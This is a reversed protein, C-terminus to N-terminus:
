YMQIGAERYEAFEIKFCAGHSRDLEITGNLQEVLMVVLQMGLSKTKRFDIDEPFGIGDDSVVVEFGDKEKISFSVSITGKSNDPFAYKFTNTLLENVVLGCPIATDVVLEVDGLDLNLTIRNPDIAYSIFLNKILNRIYEAFNIKALDERQYLEEHILAMSKIRNQSEKYVERADGEPIYQSQLNILGSIVQLNNKVRHHVEKLLVKKEELSIRVSEEAEKLRTIDRTISLIYSVGGILMVKASMLGSVITGDKMRFKAELNEVEGCSMIEKVLKKRDDPDVWIDIEVSTKGIVEERTYGTIRTFGQNIDEYTGDALRNLNISDPSTHFATRFREESDALAKETRERETVDSCLVIRADRGMHMTGSSTVDIDIVTGDKKWHKWTKRHLLGGELDSFSELLAPVEEPPRIDILSMGLLEEEAFGYHDVMAENVALIELTGTDYVYMPTPSSVFLRRHRYESEKLAEEIKRSETVDRVISLVKDDDLPSLRSEYYKTEGDLKLSYEQLKVTGTKLVEQILTKGVSAVEPPMVDAINQGIFEKPPLVPSMGEAPKFDLVKGDKDLVFCMDPIANLIKESQLKIM